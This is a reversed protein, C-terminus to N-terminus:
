KQEKNTALACKIEDVVTVGFCHEADDIDEITKSLLGELQKIREQNDDYANIAVISLDVHVADGVFLTIDDNTKLYPMVGGPIKKVPLSIIKGIKMEVGM